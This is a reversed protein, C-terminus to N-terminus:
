FRNLDVFRFRGVKDQALGVKDFRNLINMFRQHSGDGADLKAQGKTLSRAFTQDAPAPGILGHDFQSLFIGLGDPGAMGKDEEQAITEIGM